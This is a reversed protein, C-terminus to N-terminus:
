QIIESLTEEERKTYLKYQSWFSILILCVCILFIYHTSINQARSLVALVFFNTPVRFYSMMTTRVQEPIYRSRLKGMSPHFM